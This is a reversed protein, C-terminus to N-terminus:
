LMLVKMIMMFLLIKMMLKVKVKLQQVDLEDPLRRKRYMEHNGAALQFIKQAYREHTGRVKWVPAKKDSFEVQFECQCVTM